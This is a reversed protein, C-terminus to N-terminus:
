QLAMVHRKAYEAQKKCVDDRRFGDNIIKKIHAQTLLYKRLQPNKPGLTRAMDGIFSCSARIVEDSTDGDSAIKGLFDPLAKLHDVFLQEKEGDALGQLISVYTEIIAERLSNMYEVTEYDREQRFDLRSADQLLIMVHKYYKEFNGRIALAIDGLCELIRPKVHRELSGNKLNSLLTKVIEDCYPVLKSDLARAVDGCVGIAISCISPSQIDRLIQLLKEYLHPMYRLFNNEICRAVASIALLAEEHAESHNQRLVGLFFEMMPDMYRCLTERLKPNESLKGIAITLTSCYSAQANAVLAAQAPSLQKGGHELANKLRKMLEPVLQGIMPYVDSASGLVLANIAEFADGRLDIDPKEAIKLLEKVMAGFYRSLASTNNNVQVENALNCIAWCVHRAIKPNEHLGRRLAEMLNKLIEPTIAGPMEECIRGICWAATDKVQPQSDQMHGLIVPFAHLVLGKLDKKSPGDLICAFALTSAERNRWNKDKIRQKVFPLVLPVVAGGINQAMHQLCVAAAQAVNYTDDMPDEDQKTLSMLLMDALRPAARAVINLNKRQSKKGELHDEQIDIEIESVTTWFELSQKAIDEDGKKIAQSTLEYIQKMYNGIHEYYSKAVEVLCEFAAFRVRNDKSIASAFIMKEMILAREHPVGFNKRAMRLSNKLAKTAAVKINMSHQPNGLALRITNLIESSSGQLKEPYEECVEESVYGMTTLCAEKLSDNSKSDSSVQVLQKMLGPWLDRPIEIRAVKAVVQAAIDWLPKEPLNLANLMKLRLDSRKPAPLNLWRQQLQQRKQEARSDITNKLQIGALHRSNPPLKRNQMCECLGHMYAHINLGELKKLEREAQVRQEQNEGIAWLLAKPLNEM